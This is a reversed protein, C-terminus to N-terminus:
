ECYHTGDFRCYSGTTPPASICGGIQCREVTVPADPPDIPVTPISLLWETQRGVYFAREIEYWLAPVRDPADDLASCDATTCFNVKVRVRTAVAESVISYRVTQREATLPTGPWADSGGWAALFESDQNEFQLVAFRGTPGPPLDVELELVANRACGLSLLVLLCALIRPAMSGRPYRAAASPHAM